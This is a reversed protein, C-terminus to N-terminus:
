HVSSAVLEGASTRVGTVRAFAGEVAGAGSWRVPVRRGNLALAFGLPTVDEAIGWARVLVGATPELGGVGVGLPRVAYVGRAHLTASAGSLCRKGYADTTITGTISYLLDGAQSGTLGAVAIGAARDLEQVYVTSGDVFGVAKASLQVPTENPLTKATGIRDVACAPGVPYAGIGACPSGLSLHFDDRSPMVFLPDVYVNGLSPAPTVIAGGFDGGANAHFDCHSLTAQSSGGGGYIGGGEPALNFALICYNLTVPGGYHAYVAGGNVDASNHALTCNELLAGSHFPCYVGGGSASAHNRVIVNRWWTPYSHYEIVGAGGNVAKCRSVRCDTMEGQTYMGYYVGGAQDTAECDSIDCNRINVRSSTNCRIGAGVDARGRKITLGDIMVWANQPVDIARWRKRAEIVTPFAGLLRQSASTEYGLFGGYLNVCHKLTIQEPYVGAKIWIDGGMSTSIAKSITAYATSWSKGDRVPGPSRSDVYVVAWGPGAALLLLLGALVRARVDM